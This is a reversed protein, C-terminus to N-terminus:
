EVAGPDWCYVWDEGSFSHLRVSYREAGDRATYYGELIAGNTEIVLTPSLGVNRLVLRADCPYEWARKDCILHSDSGDLTLIHGDDGTMSLYNCFGPESLHIFVVLTPAEVGTQSHNTHEDVTYIEVEAVRTSDISEPNESALIRLDVIGHYYNGHKGPAVPYKAPCERWENTIPAVCSLGLLMEAAVFCRLVVQTNM